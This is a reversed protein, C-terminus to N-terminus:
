FNTAKSVGPQQKHVLAMETGASQFNLKRQERLTNRLLNFKWIEALLPTIYYPLPNALYSM